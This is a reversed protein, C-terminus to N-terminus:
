EVKEAKVDIAPAADDSVVGQRKRARVVLAVCGTWAPLMDALPVFELVFTPLLLPHFGILRSVTVMAIADLIEDFGTWGFPGFLLQAVDITVAVAYALRVDVRTLRRPHQWSAVKRRISDVLGSIVRARV